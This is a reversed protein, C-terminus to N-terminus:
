ARECIKSKGRGLSRRKTFLYILLLTLIGVAVGVLIPITNDPSVDKLDDSFPEEPIVREKIIDESVTEEVLPAESPSPTDKVNVDDMNILATDFIDQRSFFDPGKVILPTDVVCLYGCIDNM